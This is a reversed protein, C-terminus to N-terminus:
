KDGARQELSTVRMQLARNEDALLHNEREADIMHLTLEEIKALLKSQMEGLGVGKEEVEKGAPIEPLHHNAKIYDAVETLPALRYDSEFVYDAPTATVVVETASIKGGVALKSQTASVGIGVNGGFYSPDSQVYVGYTSTGGVLSDIRVGYRTTITGAISGGRVWLGSHSNWTTGSSMSPPEAHFVASDTIAGAVGPGSDVQATIASSQTVTGTGTHATRIRAGVLGGGLGTSTLNATSTSGTAAAAFLGSYQSTGAAAGDVEHVSSLTRIHGSSTDTNYISGIYFDANLPAALAPVSTGFLSYGQSGTNTLNLNGTVSALNTTKSWTLNSSAGLAGGDNFLFNTNSGPLTTLATATSANGLLNATITGAVFNGSADRKV